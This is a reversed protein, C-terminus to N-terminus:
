SSRGGRKSESLDQRIPISISFTTKQNRRSEVDITGGHDQIIGYAVSLGLGVGKGKKTTFFPEFLNPLNEKPIGGGTDTFRVLVKDDKLSHTIDIKLVGGGFPEMSEVANSILNMFVQQLQDESGILDPTDPDMTKEVRIDHLKLLNSNLILIREMLQNINVRGLEMKSQRSFALLNSVIRSTRRTETEMLDLYQNFKAVDKEELNGDQIIRKILMILNLIGAIPNNIEHVVSAALKGLSAMKDQHLLKNHTEQLQRTREEVMMELRRTIEEEEKLRVTIDRSIEIFKSIKGNKEWIPHITVEIYRPEGTRDVQNLVIQGPKKDQVVKTLPCNSDCIEYQNRSVEHFVEYCKRGILNERTYGMKSLFAENVDVVEREPSIVLIFDQIGNLITEMEKTRERLKREEVSIAKWFINFVHYSQIRISTPKTKLIDELVEEDPTLIILLNINYVPDYLEHYDRVTILGLKKATLIGPSQPDPDAVAAMRANVDSQRYDMTTKELLDKCYAGGGIIAINIISSNTDAM